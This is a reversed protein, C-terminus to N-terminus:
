LGPERRLRGREREDGPPRVARGRQRREALRLPIVEIQRGKIGGQANVLGIRADLADVANQYPASALTIPALIMIKVPGDASGGSATDEACGALALSAALLATGLAARGVRRGGTSM